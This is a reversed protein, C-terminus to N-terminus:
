VSGSNDACSFPRGGASAYDDRIGLSFLLLRTLGLSRFGSNLPWVYVSGYTGGVILLLGVLVILANGIMGATLAWTRTERRRFDGWFDWM